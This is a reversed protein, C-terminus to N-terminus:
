SSHSKLSKLVSAMTDIDDETLHDFDDLKAKMDNLVHDKYSENKHATKFFFATVTSTLIGLFGIGVLMLIVAIIRGALTTPAVDGYGVTTVTVFAWWISTELSINEAFHIGIAGLSITFLSLIVIYKFGNTDFFQVSKSHLRLFYSVLRTLKAFKSLKTLRFLRAFKAFRFIKLLSNLPIIAILDFINNKVFEKKNKSLLLRTVYDIIFIISITIDCNLIYSPLVFSTFDVIAIIVSVLALICMIIEYLTSLIKKNNM